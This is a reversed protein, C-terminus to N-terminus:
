KVPINAARAIFRVELATLSGHIEKYWVPTNPPVIIADGKSVKRSIGGIIMNGGGEPFPTIEGGTVFIGSGELILHLETWGPHLAPAGANSRHVENIVYQDTVGIPSLAPDSHM